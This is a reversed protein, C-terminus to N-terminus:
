LVSYLPVGGIYCLTSLSGEMIVELCIFIYLHNGGEDAM